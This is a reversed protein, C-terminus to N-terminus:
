WYCGTVLIVMISFNRHKLSTTIIRMACKLNVFLSTFLVDNDLFFFFTTARDLAYTYQQDDASVTFEFGVPPM